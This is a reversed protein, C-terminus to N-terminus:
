AEPGSKEVAQRLFILALGGIAAQSATLVDVAGTFYGVIAGVIATIGTWTTKQQYWKM